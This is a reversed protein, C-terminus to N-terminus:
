TSRQPLDHWLDRHWDHRIYMEVVFAPDFGSLRPGGTQADVGAVDAILGTDFLHDLGRAIMVARDANAHIRPRQFLVQQVFVALRAGVRHHFAPEVM